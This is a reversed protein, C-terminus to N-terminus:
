SALFLRRANEAAYPARVAEPLREIFQKSFRILRSYVEDELHWSMAVDTGWMVKTPAAEIVAGWNAVAQGVMASEAADYAQIFQAASGQGNPFLLIDRAGDIDGTLVLMSTDITLYLNPYKSLLEGMRERGVEGHLLVKTNPYQALMTELSQLQAENFLHLMLWLNHEGLFQFVEPWPSDTLRDRQFGQQYLAVEGFGTYFDSQEDLVEQLKAVTIEASLRPNVHFFRIFRDSAIDTYSADDGGGDDDTPTFADLLGGEDEDEEETDSDNEDAEDSGGPLVLANAFVVACGVGYQAMLETYQEPYGGEDWHSHTDILDGECSPAASGTALTSASRSPQPSAEVDASRQVLVFGAGMLALSGVVAGGIVWKTM